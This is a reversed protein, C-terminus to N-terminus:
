KRHAKIYAVLNDRLKIANPDTVGGPFLDGYAGHFFGTNNVHVKGAGVTAEILMATREVAAYEEGCAMRKAEIEAPDTPGAVLVQWVSEDVTDRDITDYGIFSKLNGPEKEESYSWSDLSVGALVPHDPQLIRGSKYDNCAMKEGRLKHQYDRPFMDIPCTEAAEVCGTDKSWHSDNAQIMVLLGGANVWQWLKEPKGPATLEGFCQWQDSDGEIYLTDFHKMPDSPDAMLYDVVQGFPAVTYKMDAISFVTPGRHWNQCSMVLVKEETAAPDRALTLEVPTVDTAAITLGGSAAREYGSKLGVVGLADVPLTEPDFGCITAKGDQNTCADYSIKRKLGDESPLDASIASKKLNMPFQFVLANQVPMGADDKVTVELRPTVSACEAIWDRGSCAENTALTGSGATGGAGGSGAAGGAGGGGGPPQPKKDDGCGGVSLTLAIGLSAAKTWVTM